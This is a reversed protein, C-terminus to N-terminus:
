GAVLVVASGARPRDVRRPVVAGEDAVELVVADLGDAVLVRRGLWTQDVVEPNPNAIELRCPAEVGRDSWGHSEGEAVASVAEVEHGFAGAEGHQFARGGLVQVQRDADVIRLSHVGEVSSPEVGSATIM